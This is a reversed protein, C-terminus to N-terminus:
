QNHPLKCLHLIKAYPDSSVDYRKWYPSMLHISEDSNMFVNNLFSKARVLAIRRMLYAQVFGILVDPIYVKMIIPLEWGRDVGGKTGGTTAFLNM